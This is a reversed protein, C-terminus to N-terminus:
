NWDNYIKRKKGEIEEKQKKLKDILNISNAEKLIEEMVNIAIKVTEPDTDLEIRMLRKRGPKTQGKWFIVISWTASASRNMGYASIMGVTRGEEKSIKSLILEKLLKNM